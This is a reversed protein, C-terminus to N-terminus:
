NKANEESLYKLIDIMDEMDYTKISDELEDIEMIPKFREMEAKFDIM